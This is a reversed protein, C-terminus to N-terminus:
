DEKHKIIGSKKLKSLERVVITEFVAYSEVFKDSMPLTNTIDPEIAVGNNKRDDQQMFVKSYLRPAVGEFPLFAIKSDEQKVSIADDHLDFALSKEYPEIYYVRKIGSAVIHKACNHCPFTTVYMTANSTSCSIKRSATVIADMEAHVARSFEILYKIRTHKKIEILIKDKNEPDVGHKILIKEIDAYLDIKYKDSFCKKEYTKYCRHDQEGDSSNYLRGNPSPVDNCGTAIIEGTESIIAAGVQRSLCASRLSSSWAIHMAYEDITPSINTRFLLKIFREFTLSLKTSDYDSNNIFFDAHQLAKILQQGYGIDESKDRKILAHAESLEIKKSKVLRSVRTDEPCLVGVFYFMSGYVARFLEVEAPHKISDIIWLLREELALPQEAELEYENMRISKIEEIALQALIDEDSDYRLRNGYEQLSSIREYENEFKGSCEYSSLILDSMKVIKVSYKADEFKKRLVSISSSVGSGLAGCFGIVLEQTRRNMVVDYPPSYMLKREQHIQKAAEGMIHVETHKLTSIDYIMSSIIKVYM